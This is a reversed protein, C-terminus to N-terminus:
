VLSANSDVAAGLALLVLGALVLLGTLAFAEAHEEGTAARLGRPVRLGVLGAKNAVRFPGRNGHFFAGLLLACGTLYLGVAVSRSAAAGLVLGLALSLAATGGAMAALLVLLRRVGALV